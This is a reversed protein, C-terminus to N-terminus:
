TKEKRKRKMKRPNKIVKNNRLAIAMTGKLSLTNKPIM